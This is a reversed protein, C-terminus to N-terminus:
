SAASERNSFGRRVWAVSWGAAYLAVLPIAWIAGFGRIAAARNRWLQERFAFACRDQVRAVNAPSVGPRFTLTLTRGEVVVEHLPELIDSLDYKPLPSKPPAPQNEPGLLRELRQAEEETLLGLHEPTTRPDNWIGLLDKDSFRPPPQPAQPQQDQPRNSSELQKVDVVAQHDDEMSALKAADGPPMRAYVAIMEVQDATPWNVYGLLGVCIAWPVAIGIWLRQWGNLRM